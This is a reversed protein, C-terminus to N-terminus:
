HSPRGGNFYHHERPKQILFWSKSRFLAHLESKDLLSNMTANMDTGIILYYDSLNM